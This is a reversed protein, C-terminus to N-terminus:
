RTVTISGSGDTITIIHPSAPDEPVTVTSSGSGTSTHVHYATRGPPLVVRVDGSGTTIQVHAPVTTFTVTVDGSGASAIVTRSSVRSLTITGSGSGATVTAGTLGAGTIDGSGSSARVSGSLSWLRVTGSGSHLTAAAALGTATVDGSGITVQTALGPPAAVIYDFGCAGTVQRCQSTVTVGSPATQWAVRSRFLAYHATGTVGLRGATGPRVRVDGADVRVTATGARAPLHLRVPYSGQGLWAVASMATWGIIILVLPVGAALVARRGRTLPLPLPATM